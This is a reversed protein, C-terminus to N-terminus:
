QQSALFKVDYVGEALGGAIIQMNSTTIPFSISPECWHDLLEAIVGGSQTGSDWEFHDSGLLFFAVSQVDSADLLGSLFDQCIHLLNEIFVEREALLDCEFNVGTHLENHGRIDELTVRLGHADLNGDFYAALDSEKM